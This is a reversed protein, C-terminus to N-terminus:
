NDKAGEKIWTILGDIQKQNFPIIRSSVPPMPNMTRGQVVQVLLSVEPIGKTVLRKDTVYFYETLIVNGAHGSEDHCGAVACKSYFVPKLHKVYSVDKDPIKDSELDVNTDDCSIFIILILFLLLFRM